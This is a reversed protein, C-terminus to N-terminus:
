NERKISHRNVKVHKIKDHQILNFSINIDTKKDCCLKIPPKVAVGLENILKKIWLAESMGQAVARFEAETNSKAM